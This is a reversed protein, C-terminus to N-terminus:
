GHNYPLNYLHVLDLVNNAFYEFWTRPDNFQNVLLRDEITNINQNEQLALLQYTWYEKQFFLQVEPAKGISAVIQPHSTYFNVQVGTRFLLDRVAATLDLDGIQQPRNLFEVNSQQTHAAPFISTQM